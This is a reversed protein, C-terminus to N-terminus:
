GSFMDGEGLPFPLLGDPVVALILFRLGKIGTKSASGAAQCINNDYNTAIMAILIVIM